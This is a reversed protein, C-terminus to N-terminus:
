KEESETSICNLGFKEETEIRIRYYQKPYITRLFSCSQRPYFNLNKIKCPTKTIKTLFVIPLSCRNHFDVTTKSIKRPYFYNTVKEVGLWFEFTNQM